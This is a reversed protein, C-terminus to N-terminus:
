QETGVVQSSPIAQGVAKFRYYTWRHTRAHLIGM